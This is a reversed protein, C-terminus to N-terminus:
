STPALALLKSHNCLLLRDSTAMQYTAHNWTKIETCGYKQTELGFAGEDSFTMMRADPLREVCFHAAEFDAVSQRPSALMGGGFDTEPFQSVCVEASMQNTPTDPVLYAKIVTQSEPACAGLLLLAIMRLHRSGDVIHRM